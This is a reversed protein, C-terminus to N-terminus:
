VLGMGTLLDDPVSVGSAFFQGQEELTAIAKQCNEESWGSSLLLQRIEGVAVRTFPADDTARESTTVRIRYESTDSSDSVRIFDINKGGRATM